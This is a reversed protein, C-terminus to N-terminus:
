APRARVVIAISTLAYSAYLFRLVPEDAFPPVDVYQDLLGGGHSFDFAAVQHGAAELREKLERIDRERYIVTPGAEITDEDSSLNFETTHVAIGGPALTELSQEIFDLGNALTGLHELSCVSWCFDFSRLSEPIARMDVAQWTVLKRFAEPDRVNPRLMDEVGVAHQDSRAWGKAERATSALDTALVEVGRDAFLSVLPERGVGFGLGRRGPELMGLADLVEAVYAFEWTKRHALPPEAMADCWEEFWPEHLQAETCLLSRVHPPFRDDDVAEQASRAAGQAWELDALHKALLAQNKKLQGIGRFEARRRVISRRLSEPLWEFMTRIVRKV